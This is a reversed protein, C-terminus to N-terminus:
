KIHESRLGSFCPTDNYFAKVRQGYSDEFCDTLGPMLWEYLSKIRAKLSAKEKSIKERQRCRREQANTMRDPM